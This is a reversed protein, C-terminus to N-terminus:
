FMRQRDIGFGMKEFRRLLKHYNPWYRKFGFVGSKEGRYYLAMMFEDPKAYEAMWPALSFVDTVEDGEEIVPTQNMTNLTVGLDHKFSDVFRQGEATICIRMGLKQFRRLTKRLLLGIDAGFSALVEGNYQVLSSLKHSGTSYIILDIQPRAM